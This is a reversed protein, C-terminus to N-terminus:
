GAEEVVSAALVRDFSRRSVLLEGVFDIHHAAVAVAPLQHQHEIEAFWHGLFLTKQDASSSVGAVSCSSDNRAQELAEVEVVGASNLGVVELESAVAPLGVEGAIDAGAIGVEVVVVCDFM